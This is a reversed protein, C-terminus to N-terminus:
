ALKTASPLSRVNAVRIRPFLGCVHEALAARIPTPSMLGTRLTRRGHRAHYAIPQKLSRSVIIKFCHNQFLIVQAAQGMGGIQETVLGTAGGDDDVRLAVDLLVHDVGLFEPQLDAVDKEAVEVGIENGTVQLQAIAAARGDM